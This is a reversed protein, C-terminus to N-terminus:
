AAIEGNMLRPLLLDRAQTLRESQLQLNLMQQLLPVIINTFRNLLGPQPMLMPYSRIITQSINRQAAGQSLNVLGQKNERLFLYMFAYNAPSQKACLACCAQNTASENALIGIEGITAGYMAVLVTNEPFLKASSRQIAENTIKEETELIFRNQLEKTKVWNIDGTYFEPRKRSPTGGSSTDYFDAISGKTWGEPIGDVVPTHEHGPFRLHVFWERYLLRAAEELLAIRRRNNEILNDYASLTSAIRDQIRILPIEVEFDPFKAIPVRDVTAGSIVNSEVTAKWKSSLFYYHLFKPNVKSKDPRVLAM